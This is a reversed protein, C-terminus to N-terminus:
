VQRITRVKRLIDVEDFEYGLAKEMVLLLNAKLQVSKEASAESPKFDSRGLDYFHDLLVKWANRVAREKETNADFEVDILNLAQVFSPNLETARFSMLTKFVWLKRNKAEREKDLRRQVQLAFIPGSVIAAITLINIVIGTKDM